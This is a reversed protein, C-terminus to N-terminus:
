SGVHVLTKGFNRGEFVSQLADPAHELGQVIHELPRVEGSALWGIMERKFESYRAKMHDFVVLGRIELRKLNIENLLLTTRDPGGPLSAASYNSMLGCVVIRGHLNMLPMVADFVRGGVTEIYVDVGKGCASKLSESFRQDHHDVCADFGLREVAVRCKEASGAVGVARIGKLRAIQGVCQGLGGTAAGVVVTEGPQAAALHLLALYAGFGSYGLVGLAFSPRQIDPPVKRIPGPGSVAHDQWKWLGYVLDGTAYDAHRSHEVRGVAPGVMPDGLAIPEAQNSARKVKSLLYPEMGLWQTRILLEGDRPEPIPAHDLKFCNATPIVYRPREALVIRRNSLM